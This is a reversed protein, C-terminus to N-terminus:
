SNYTRSLFLRCETLLIDRERALSSDENPTQVAMARGKATGNKEAFLNDLLNSLPDAL